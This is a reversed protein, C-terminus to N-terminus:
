GDTEEIKQLLARTECSWCGEQSISHACGPHTALQRYMAPAQAILRANARRQRIPLISLQDCDAICVRTGHPQDILVRRGGGVTFWNGPTFTPEAM